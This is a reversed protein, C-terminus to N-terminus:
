GRRKSSTLWALEQKIARLLGRGVLALPSGGSFAAAIAHLSAVSFRPESSVAYVPDWRDPNFKAKFADLGDFNYFRRGHARAWTSAANWIWGSQEIGTAARRSLPALGLTLYQAGEQALVRAAGDIVLETAGNPAAPDRVFQEILWGSRTPVPSAVVFVLPVGRSEAVFVRRDELRALTQPEVLFHLPPLGRTELWTELCRTLAPHNEAVRSPWERVTVGKNRARRLQARLSSHRELRETWGSPQWSPSAGLPLFAHHPDDRYLAEIRGEAGFYCVRQGAAGAEAEFEAAVRALDSLACVPAGAVVRTRGATVYGVVGDAASSFWHRIGPNLIQYVTSTWGHQLM